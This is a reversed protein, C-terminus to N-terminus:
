CCRAGDMLIAAPGCVDLGLGLRSKVRYRDSPGTIATRAASKSLHPFGPVPLYLERLRLSHHRNRFALLAEPSTLPLNPRNERCKWEWQGINQDPEESKKNPKPRARWIKKQEFETIACKEFDLPLSRHLIYYVVCDTTFFIVV